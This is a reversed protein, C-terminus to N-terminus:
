TNGFGKEKLITVTGPSRFLITRQGLSCVARQGLLLCMGRKEQGERVTWRKDNRLTDLNSRRM